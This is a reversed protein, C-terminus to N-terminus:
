EAQDDEEASALRDNIMGEMREAGREARALLGLVEPDGESGLEERALELSMRTASLPNKLDHSVQGAYATLEDRTAALRRTASALALVDSARATVLELVRATREADGAPAGYVGLAGVTVGEPTVLPHGAYGTVGAPEGALRPDDSALDALVVPGGRTVVEDALSQERPCASGPLGYAAVRHREDDSVVDVAAHAAGTALAALEALALLAPPPADLLQHEAIAAARDTPTM